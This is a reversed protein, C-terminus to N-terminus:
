PVRPKLEPDTGHKDIVRRGARQGVFPACAPSPAGYYRAAVEAFEANTLRDTKNPLATLWVTSFKDSNLWSTLRM